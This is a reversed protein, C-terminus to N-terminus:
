IVEIGSKSKLSDSYCKEFGKWFYIVHRNYNKKWGFIRRGWQTDCEFVLLDEVAEPDGSSIIWHLVINYLNPWINFSVYVLPLPGSQPGARIHRRLKVILSFDDDCVNCNAGFYWTKKSGSQAFIQPWVCRLEPAPAM